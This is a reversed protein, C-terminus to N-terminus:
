EDRDNLVQQYTQEILEASGGGFVSKKAYEVVCRPTGDLVTYWGPFSGDMRLIDAEWERMQWERWRKGYNLVDFGTKIETGKWVEEDPYKERFKKGNESRLLFKRKDQHTVRIHRFRDAFWLCSEIDASQRPTLKGM